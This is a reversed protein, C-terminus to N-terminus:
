RDRKSIISFAKKLKDRETEAVGLRKELEAIWKTDECLSQVGHGPFSAEGKQQYEKRWRYLLFSATHCINQCAFTVRAAVSTLALVLARVPLRARQIAEYQSHSILFRDSMM